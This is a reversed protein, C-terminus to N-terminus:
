QNNNGEYEAIVDIAKSDDKFAPKVQIRKGNECQIFYNYYHVEKGEKNKYTQKSQKKIIKIM